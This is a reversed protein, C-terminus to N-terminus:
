KRKIIIKAKPLRLGYLKSNKKGEIAIEFFKAHSKNKLVNHIGNNAKSVNSRFTAASIGRERLERKERESVEKDPYSEKRYVLLKDVFSSPVFIGSIREFEDSIL